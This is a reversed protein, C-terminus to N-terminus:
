TDPKIKVKNSAEELFYCFDKWKEVRCFHLFGEEASIKSYCTLMYPYDEGIGNESGNECYEEKESLHFSLSIDAVFFISYFCLM